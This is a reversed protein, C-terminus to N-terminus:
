PGNHARCYLIAGKSDAHFCWQRLVRGELDRIECLFYYASKGANILDLTDATVSKYTMQVSVAKDNALIELPVLPQSTGNNELMGWLTDEALTQKVGDTYVDWPGTLEAM